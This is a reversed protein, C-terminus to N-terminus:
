SSSVPPLPYKTAYQDVWDIYDGRAGPFGIMKWAAMNKNGGHKPDCFYGERTNTLLQSFFVKTPVGSLALTGAELATLVADQDAAALEPFPKGHQQQVAQALAALGQRYLDRPSQALQYGFEEAATPVFPAQMFWLAGYGYPQGMQRDIFEPVGAEVAGPGEGDAPILRAVLASLLTWETANFYGPSYRTASSDAAGSATLGFASGLAVIAPGTKAAGRLFSRRSPSIGITKM